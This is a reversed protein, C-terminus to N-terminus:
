RLPGVHKKSEHISSLSAHFHDGRGALEPDDDTQDHWDCFMKAVNKVWTDGEHIDGMLPHHDNSDFKGDCSMGKGHAVRSIFNAFGEKFAVREHQQRNMSWSVGVGNWGYDDGDWARLHLVHGYEHAIIPGKVWHEKGKIVVQDPGLTTGSATRNSPYIYEM